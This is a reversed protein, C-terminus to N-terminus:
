PDYCLYVLAARRIWDDLPTDPPVTESWIYDGVSFLWRRGARQEAIFGEGNVSGTVVDTFRGRAPPWFIRLEMTLAASIEETISDAM